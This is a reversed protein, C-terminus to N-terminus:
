AMAHPVPFFPTKILKIAEIDKALKELAIDQLVAVLTAWTM